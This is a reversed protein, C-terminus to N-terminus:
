TVSKSVDEYVGYDWIFIRRCMPGGCTDRFARAAAAVRSAFLGFVAEFMFAVKNVGEVFM